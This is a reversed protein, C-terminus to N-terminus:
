CFCKRRDQKDLQHVQKVSDHEGSNATVMLNHLSHIALTREETHRQLLARTLEKFANDVHINDRASTEYFGIIQSRSKSLNEATSREVERQHPNHNVLDVKTGVIMIMVDGAFDCM